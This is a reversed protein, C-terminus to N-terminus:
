RSPPALGPVLRLSDLVMAYGPELKRLDEDAGTSLVAVTLHELEAVYIEITHPVREGLMTVSVSRRKGSRVAGLLQRTVDTTIGDGSDVLGGSIRSIEMHMERTTEDLLETADLPMAPRFVQIALYATGASELEVIRAVIEGESLTSETAKWNGPYSFGIERGTFTKPNEVDPKPEVFFGMVEECASCGSLLVTALAAGVILSRQM